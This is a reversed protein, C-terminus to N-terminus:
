SFFGHLFWKPKKLDDYHGSRFVWYRCGDEDEVSYYDRHEGEQIWWEQEIREPGDAKMVKHLKGKHRFLMPPYDPIPATVHIYEPVSLLQLPRRRDVKWETTPQDVLSTAIKFSREPWYHEDPLYRHIANAGIKGSIRDILESLADNNLGSNRKWCEVQTPIHDEVKTAELVFLEIGLGPEFTQLKLQFLHFLHKLNSSSRSTAIQISVTKNDIRYGKFQATRIGKGEKALRECMAELLKELAIEIGELTSIPELCPLREHYPEVPCVAEFLEEESGFAQNLRKAILKGFRRRLSSPKISIFTKIQRLGLKHLREITTEEIRLAEPPLEMLADVHKSSEVVIEKGFRAVGWACGITDAIATKAYYGKLHIRHVIDKVYLEDGGWLHTCGSADLIIGHPLDVTARPTFRICWKAIRNLLQPVLEPKDDFYELSPLIARADALVMGEDIGEKIALANAATIIKRGHDPVVLVFAIKKLEPQRLEFWDIALHPFWISVYRKM